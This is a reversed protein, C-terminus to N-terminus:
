VELAIGETASLSSNVPGGLSKPQMRLWTGGYRDGFVFPGWIVDHVSCGYAGNQYLYPLSEQVEQVIWRGGALAQALTARWQERPVFRGLYVGKGGLSMAEKLVFREPHTALLEALQHTEGQYDVPGPAVLRTWPVYTEILAREEATYAGSGAQQSLLALTRKDSLFSGVPSNYLGIRRSQSLLYIRPPAMPGVLQVVAEIRRDGLLVGVNGVTLQQYTCLVVRGELDLDMRQLTRQLERNLYPPFHGAGAMLEPRTVFALTFSGGRLIGKGRLDEIVHRFMEVMTDTFTAEIGAGDLFRAVPPTALQLGAIITTEAGGLNTGFNFEICKLGGATAIFDGRSMLTEAGTPPRFLVEAISRELGYFNALRAWDKRFVREPVTRLLRNVALGAQQLEALKEAGVLTPWSQLPWSLFENKRDLLEFQGRDLLEPSEHAIERFRLDVASLGRHVDRWAGGSADETPAIM